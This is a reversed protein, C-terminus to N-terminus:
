HLLAYEGATGVITEAAAVALSTVNFLQVDPSGGDRVAYTFDWGHCAGAHRGKRDMAVVAGVYDPYKSLIRRVASEAADHPGLGRRMSEVVQADSM